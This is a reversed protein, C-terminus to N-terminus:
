TDGHLMRHHGSCLLQLNRPHSDGGQSIPKVHHIELYKSHACRLGPKIQHSCRGQDRMFVYHKLAAPLPTRKSSTKFQLKPSAKVQDAPYSANPLVPHSTNTKQAKDSKGSNKKVTLSRKAQELALELAEELSLDSKAKSLSRVKKLKEM